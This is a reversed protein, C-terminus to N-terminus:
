RSEADTPHDSPRTEAQEALANPRVDTQLNTGYLRRVLEGFDDPLSRDRGATAGGSDGDTNDRGKYLLESAQTEARRQEAIIKSLVALDDLPLANQQGDLVDFVRGLLALYVGRGWRVPDDNALAEAMASLTRGTRAIRKRFAATQPASEDPFPTAEAAPTATGNAVTRAYRAFQRRRRRNPSSTASTM